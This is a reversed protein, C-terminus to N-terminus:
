YVNIQFSRKTYIEPEGNFSTILGTVALYQHEFFREPRPNYWRALYGPLIVTFDQFPYYAGFYLFYEDTNWSYFVDFVEGYVTMVDGRYYLADYASIMRIPYGNYYNWYSVMPYIEIFHRNLEPTWYVEYNYPKRYIYHVSRYDRNAPPQHYQHFPKHNERYVRPSEYDVIPNQNTPTWNTERHHSNEVSTGRRVTNERESSRGSNQNDDYRDHTYSERSDPRQTTSERGSPKQTNERDASRQSETRDPRTTTTSSSESGRSTANRDQNTSRSSNNQSSTNTSEQRSTSANSNTPKKSTQSHVTAVALTMALVFIIKKM